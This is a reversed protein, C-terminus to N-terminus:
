RARQYTFSLACDWAIAIINCSVFNLLPLFSLVKARDCSSDELSTLDRVSPYVPAPTPCSVNALEVENIDIGLDVLSTNGDVTMGTGTAGM